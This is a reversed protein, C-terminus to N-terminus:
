QWWNHKTENMYISGKKLNSRVTAPCDEVLPDRVLLELPIPPIRLHLPGLDSLLISDPPQVAIPVTFSIYIHMFSTHTGNSLHIYRSTTTCARRILNHLINTVINHLLAEKMATHLVMSNLAFCLIFLAWIFLHFFVFNIKQRPVFLACFRAAVSFCWDRNTIRVPVLAGGGRELVPWM